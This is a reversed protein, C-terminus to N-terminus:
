FSANSLPSNGISNATLEVIKKNRKNFNPLACSFREINTSGPKDTNQVIVSDDKKGYILSEDEMKISVEEMASHVLKYWCNESLKKSGQFGCVILHDEARTMGVYLLRLYEAYIKNQNATKLDQFYEPTYASNQASM